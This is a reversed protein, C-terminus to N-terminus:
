REHVAGRSTLVVQLLTTSGNTMAAQLLTLWYQVGSVQDRKGFAVHDDANHQTNLDREKLVTDNIHQIETASPAM